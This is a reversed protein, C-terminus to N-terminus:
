NTDEGAQPPRRDEYRQRTFERPNNVADSNWLLVNLGKSPDINDGHRKGAPYEMGDYGAHPLMNNLYYYGQAADQDFLTRDVTAPLSMNLMEITEEIEPYTYTHGETAEWRARGGWYRQNITDVIHQAEEPPIRDHELLRLGRPLKHQRVYSGPKPVPRGQGDLVPKGGDSEHHYGDIVEKNQTTYFGKGYADGGWGGKAKSKPDTTVKPHDFKETTQHWTHEPRELVRAALTLRYWM